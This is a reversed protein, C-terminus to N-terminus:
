PREAHGLAEHLTVELLEGAYDCWRCKAAARLAKRDRRRKAIRDSVAFLGALAAIGFVLGAAWGAGIAFAQWTPPDV